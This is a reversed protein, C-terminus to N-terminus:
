PWAVVISHVKGKNVDKVVTSGARSGARRLIPWSRLLGCCSGYCLLKALRGHVLEARLRVPEPQLADEGPGGCHRRQRRWWRLLEEDWRLRGGM